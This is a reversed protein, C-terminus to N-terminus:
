DWGSGPFMENLGGQIGDGIPGLFGLAVRVLSKWWKRGSRKGDVSGEDITVQGILAIIKKPFFIVTAVFAIILWEWWRINKFDIKKVM